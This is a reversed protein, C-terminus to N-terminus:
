QCVDHQFPYDHFQGSKIQAKNTHGVAQQVTYSSLETISRLSRKFKFSDGVHIQSSRLSTLVTM